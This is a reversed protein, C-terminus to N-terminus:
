AVRHGLMFEAPGLPPRHVVVTFLANPDDEAAIIHIQRVRVQVARPGEGAAYVGTEKPCGLEGWTVKPTVQPTAQPTVQPAVTQQAAERQATAVRRATM